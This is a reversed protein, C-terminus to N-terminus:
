STTSRHAPMVRKVEVLERKEGTIAAKANPAPAIEDASSAGCQRSRAADDLYPAFAPGDLPHIEWPHRLVVAAPRTSPPEARRFLLGVPDPDPKFPVFRFYSPVGPSLKEVESFYAPWAQDFFEATM